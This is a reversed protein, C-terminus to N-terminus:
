RGCRSCCLDWVAIRGAVSAGVLASSAYSGFLNLVLKLRNRTFRETIQLDDINLKAREIESRNHLATALAEDYNPIDPQPEPLADATVL